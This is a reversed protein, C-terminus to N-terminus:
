VAGGGGVAGDGEQERERRLVLTFVLPNIGGYFVWQKHRAQLWDHFAQDVSVMVKLGRVTQLDPGFSQSVNVLAWHRTTPM